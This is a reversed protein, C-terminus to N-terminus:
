VNEIVHILESATFVCGDGGDSFLARRIPAVREIASPPYALESIWGACPKFLAIATLVEWCLFTSQPTDDAPALAVCVSFEGVPRLAAIEHEELAYARISAAAADPGRLALQHHVAGPTAEVATLTSDAAFGRVADLLADASRNDPVLCRYLVVITTCAPCGYDTDTDWQWKWGLHGPM